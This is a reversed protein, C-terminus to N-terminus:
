PSPPFTLIRVNRGSISRDRSNEPAEFVKDFCLVILLFHPTHMTHRLFSWFWQLVFCFGAETSWPSVMSIPRMTLTEILDKSESKLGPATVFLHYFINFIGLGQGRHRPTRLMIEPTHTPPSFPLPLRRSLRNNM